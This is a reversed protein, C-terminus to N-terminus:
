SIVTVHTLAHSMCKMTMENIIVWLHILYKIPRSMLCTLPITWRGKLNEPSICSHEYIDYMIDFDTFSGGCILYDM